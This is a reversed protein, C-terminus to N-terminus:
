EFWWRWTITGDNIHHSIEFIFQRIEEQEEVAPVPIFDSGIKVPTINYDELGNKTLEITLIFSQSNPSYSDSPDFQFNGLSYAILGNKYKEIGQVVHPHHGLIITAGSDILKHALDIQKPSPYFVNEIGWHLSIIVFDSHQKALKIDKINEEIDM